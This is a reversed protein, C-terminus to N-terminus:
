QGPSSPEERARGPTRAPEPRPGQTEEPVARDAGGMGEERTEPAKGPLEAPMGPPVLLSPDVAPYAYIGEGPYWFLPLYPAAELCTKEDIVGMEQWLRQLIGRLRDVWWRNFQRKQYVNWAYVPAPKTAMLFAGELPTLDQPDKHFYAQSAAQIGYIRRGFEIVNLYLELIREKTLRRELQWVIIAEELKRALTKERSLFLNKVLQQTITSGGYVYWGRDLNLVIARRILGLKFGQHKFFGMDETALAAQWVPEPIRELPVYSPTGPGVEIAPEERPKEGPPIRFVLPGDLSELRVQRGLSLPECGELDGSFRLTVGKVVTRGVPGGPTFSLGALDVSLDLDLDMSGTFRMGELRPVMVPPIASAVAQCSQRPVTFRVGIRPQPHRFREVQVELGFVAPGVNWPDLRLSAREQDLDLDGTLIASFALDTVPVLCIKTRFYSLGSGSLDGEFRFRRGDGEASWRLDMAAGPWPLVHPDALSLLRPLLAGYLRGRVERLVGDPGLRLTIDARSDQGEPTTVRGGLSVAVAAGAEREAELRVGALRFRGPHPGGVRVEASFDRLVLSQLWPLRGQAGAQEPVVAGRAEGVRLAEVAEVAEPLVRGPLGELRLDEITWRLTGGGGPRELMVRRVSAAEVPLRWGSVRPLRLGQEGVLDALVGGAADGRVRLVWPVAEVGGVSLGGRGELRWGAGERVAEGEMGALRFAVEGSDGDRVEVAGDRVEVELDEWTGSGGSSNGGSPHRFRRVAEEWAVPRGQQLLVRGELGELVVRAPRREGKLWGWLSWRVRVRSVRLGDLGQDEMRISLDRLVLRDPFGFDVGSFEVPRGLRQSLRELRSRVERTAVQRGAPQVLLALAALLTAALLSALIWRRGRSVGAPLRLRFRV